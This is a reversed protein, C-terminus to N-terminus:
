QQVFLDFKVKFFLSRKNLTELALTERILNQDISDWYLFLIFEKKQLTKTRYESLNEYKEM